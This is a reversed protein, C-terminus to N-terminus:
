SDGVATAEVAAEVAEVGEGVLANVDDSEAYVRVYPETGSPRVLVWSGDPLTARVGYETEVSAEPFREPIATEVREMAGAKADDPCSVSQKRYPRETVPERLPALGGAEAVLRSVVAASTVGDIWGGFQTHIHKWPEAAFVVETEDTARADTGQEDTARADTARADADEYVSAIGEHLAGLRVREVRGGAAEVQEDIRGSANPTTV